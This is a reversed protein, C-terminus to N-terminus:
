PSPSASPGVAWAHGFLVINPGPFEPTSWVIGNDAATWRYAFDGICGTKWAVVVRDGQVSQSATCDHPAHTGSWHVTLADGAITLDLTGANDPVLASAGIAELQAATVVAHYTADPPLTAPLGQPAVIRAFAVEDGDAALRVTSAVVTADRM